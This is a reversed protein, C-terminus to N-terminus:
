FLIKIFRKDQQNL